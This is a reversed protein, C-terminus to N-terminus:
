ILQLIDVLKSSPTCLYFLLCVTEKWSYVATDKQYVSLEEAWAFM